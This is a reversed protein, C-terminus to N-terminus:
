NVPEQYGVCRCLFFLSFCSKIVSRAYTCDFVPNKLTAPTFVICLATVEMKTQAVYKADGLLCIFNSLYKIVNQTVTPLSFFVEGVLEDSHAAELCRGYDPCLPQSISQSVRLFFFFFFFIRLSVEPLNRLYHKLLVAPYNPDKPPLKYNGRDFNKSFLDLDDSNVSIRFIGESRQGGLVLVQSCLYHVVYPLGLDPHTERQLEMARSLAFGFIATKPRGVDKEPLRVVVPSQPAPTDKRRFFPSGHGPPSAAAGSAGPVSKQKRPSVDKPAEKKVPSPQKRVFQREAEMMKDLTPNPTKATELVKARQGEKMAQHMVVPSVMSARGASSRPAVGPFATPSALDMNDVAAGCLATMPVHDVVKKGDIKLWTTEVSLTVSMAPDRKDLAFSKTKESRDTCFQAMDISRSALLEKAGSKVLHLAILMRNPETVKAPMQQLFSSVVQFSHVVLASGNTVTFPESFGRNTEKSGWKWSICLRLGELSAPCAVLKVLRMSLHAIVVRQRSPFKM